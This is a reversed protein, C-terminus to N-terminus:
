TYPIKQGSAIQKAEWADRTQKEDNTLARHDRGCGGRCNGHSNARCPGKGPTKGRNKADGKGGGKKSDRICM